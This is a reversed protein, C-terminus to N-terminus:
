QGAKPRLGRPNRRASMLRRSPSATTSRTAKVPEWVKTVSAARSLVVNRADAEAVIQQSLRHITGAVSKVSARDGLLLTPTDSISTGVKHHFQRVMCKTNDMAFVETGSGLYQYVAFSSQERYGAPGARPQSVKKTRQRSRLHCCEITQDDAIAASRSGRDISSIM